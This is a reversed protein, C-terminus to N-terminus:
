LGNGGIENRNTAFRYEQSCRCSVNECDMVKRFYFIGFYRVSDDLCFRSKQSTSRVSELLFIADILMGLPVLGVIVRIM